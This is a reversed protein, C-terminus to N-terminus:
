EGTSLSYAKKNLIEKIGTVRFIENDISSIGKIEFISNILSNVSSNLLFSPLCPLYSFLFGKDFKNAFDGALYKLLTTKGAGNEGFLAYVKGQNLQLHKVDLSFNESYQHQIDDIFITTNM